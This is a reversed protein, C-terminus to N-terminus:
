EEEVVWVKLTAKVEPHLVVTVNFVGTQKIGDDIHVQKKELKLGQEKAAAVVESSKISGYLHGEENVRATITCSAAEVKKALAAASDKENALEVQRDARAKALRQKMVESAPVGKGQPILFNRAFGESVNVVDGVIGLGDVDTTLILEKRM